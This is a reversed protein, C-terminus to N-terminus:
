CYNKNILYEMHQNLFLLFYLCAFLLFIFSDILDDSPSDASIATKRGFENYTEVKKSGKVHSMAKHNKKIIFYLLTMCHTCTTGDKIGVETIISAEPAVM